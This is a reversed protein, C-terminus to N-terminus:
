PLQPRLRRPPDRGVAAPRSRLAAAARARPRRVRQRRRQALLPVQLAARRAPPLPGPRAPARRRRLARRRHARRVSGRLAHHAGRVRRLRSGAVAGTGRDPRAKGGVWALRPGGSAGARPARELGAAPRGICIATLRSVAIARIWSIWVASVGGAAWGAGVVTGASVDNALVSWPAIPADGPVAAIAGAADLGAYAGTAGPCNGCRSPSRSQLGSSSRRSSDSAAALPMCKWM